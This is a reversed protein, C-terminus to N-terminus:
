WDIVPRCIPVPRRNNPGRIRPKTDAESLPPLTIQLYMKTGGIFDGNRGIRITSCSSISGDNTNITYKIFRSLKLDPRDVVLKDIVHRVSLQNEPDIYEVSEPFLTLLKTYGYTRNSSNIIYELQNIIYKVHDNVNTSSPVSVCLKDIQEITLQKDNNYVSEDYPRGKMQRAYEQQYFGNKVIAAPINVSRFFTM